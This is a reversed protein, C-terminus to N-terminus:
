LCSKARQLSWYVKKCVGGGGVVVVICNVSAQPRMLAEASRCTTTSHTKAAAIKKVTRM